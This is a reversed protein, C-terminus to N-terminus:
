NLHEEVKKKWYEIENGDKIDQLFKYTSYIEAIEREDRSLAYGDAVADKIYEVDIGKASLRDLYGFLIGIDALPDGLKTETDIFAFVYAGKSNETALLNRLSPDHLVLTDVEDPLLNLKDIYDPLKDVISELNWGTKKM